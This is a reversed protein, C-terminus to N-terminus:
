QLDSIQTPTVKWKIIKEGLKSTLGGFNTVEM